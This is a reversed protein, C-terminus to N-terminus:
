WGDLERCSGRGAGTGTPQPRLTETHCSGPSTVFYASDGSGGSYIEELDAKALLSGDGGCAAFSLLLAIAILSRSLFRPKGM